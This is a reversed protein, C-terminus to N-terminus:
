VGDKIQCFVKKIFLLLRFNFFTVSKQIPFWLNWFFFFQFQCKKSFDLFVHESIKHTCCSDFSFYIFFKEHLCGLQPHFSFYFLVVRKKLYHRLADLEFKVESFNVKATNCAESESSFISILFKRIKKLYNKM